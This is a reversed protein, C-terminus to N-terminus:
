HVRGRCSSCRALHEAVMSPGLERVIRETDAEDFIPEGLVVICTAEDDCEAVLRRITPDDAGTQWTVVVEREAM